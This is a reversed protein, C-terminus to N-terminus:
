SQTGISLYLGDPSVDLDYISSKAKTLNSVLQFNSREMEDGPKPHHPICTNEM